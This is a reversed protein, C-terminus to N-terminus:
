KSGEFMVEIDANSTKVNLKKYGSGGSEINSDGNSTECTITFDSQPKTIIATIKGNSSKLNIDNSDIEAATIGGNSTTLSLTEHARVSLTSIVGNSTKATIRDAFLNGLSVKGNSTKIELRDLTMNDVTVPGNSTELEVDGLKEIDKLIIGGNSTDIDIDGIYSSPLHLLVTKQEYGRNDFLSALDFNFFFGRKTEIKGIFTTREEKVEISDYQSAYFELVIEDGEYEVVEVSRDDLELEIQEIVNPDATYRYSSYEAKGQSGIQFDPWDIELKGTGIMMGVVGTGLLIVGLLSLALITIFLNRWGHRKDKKNAM